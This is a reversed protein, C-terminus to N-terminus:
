PSWPTSARYLRSRSLPPFRWLPGHSSLDPVDDPAVQVDYRCAGEGLADIIHHSSLPSGRDLYKCRLRYCRQYKARSELCVTSQTNGVMLCSVM